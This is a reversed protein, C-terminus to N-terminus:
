LDGLYRSALNPTYNLYYVAEVNLVFEYFLTGPRNLAGVKYERDDLVATDLKIDNRTDEVSITNASVFRILYRIMFTIKL